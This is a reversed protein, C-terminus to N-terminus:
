SGRECQVAPHFPLADRAQDPMEPVCIERAECHEAERALEVLQVVGVPFM